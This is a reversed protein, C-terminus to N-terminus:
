PNATASSRELRSKRRPTRAVQNSTLIAQFRPAASCWAVHVREARVAPRPDRTSCTSLARILLRMSRRMAKEFSAFEVGAPPQVPQPEDIDAILFGADRLDRAM